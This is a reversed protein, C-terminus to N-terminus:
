QLALAHKIAGVGGKIRIHILICVHINLYKKLFDSTDIDSPMELLEITKDLYNFTIANCVNCLCSSIQRSSSNVTQSKEIVSNAYRCLRILYASGSLGATKHSIIYGLFSM